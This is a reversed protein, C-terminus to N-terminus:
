KEGSSIITLYYILQKGLEKVTTFGYMLRTM